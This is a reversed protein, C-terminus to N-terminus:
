GVRRGAGGFRGARPRPAPPACVRADGPALGPASLAILAPVKWTPEDPYENVHRQVAFIAIKSDLGVLFATVAGPTLEMGRMREASTSRGPVPAGARWDVHM